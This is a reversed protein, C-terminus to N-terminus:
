RSKNLKEQCKHCMGFIAFHEINAKFKYKRLLSNQLPELLAHDVEEVKGCQQCVMHHHPEDSHMEYHASGKGLDTVTIINEKSLMDLTRYVTSRNVYPHVAQVWQYIDEASVHGGHKRMVEMIMVRQPTVRHGSRRMQNVIPTQASMACLM